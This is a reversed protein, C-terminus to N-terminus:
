CSARFNITAFLFVRCGAFYVMSCSMGTVQTNLFHPVLSGAYGGPLCVGVNEPNKWRRVMDPVKGITIEDDRCYNWSRRVAPQSDAGPFFIAFDGYKKIWGSVKEYIDMREVVAQGSFGALYGSLEGVTSGLGAALAVGAPHFVTGMLSTIIVMPMPLFLSANLVLAMLFIGPYGLIKLSEIKDANFLIFVSLGIVLVLALIRLINLVRPKQLWAKIVRGKEGIKQYLNSYTM